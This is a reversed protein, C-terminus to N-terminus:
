DASPLPRGVAWPGDSAIIERACVCPVKDVTAPARGLGSAKHGGARLVTRCGVVDGLGCAESWRCGAGVQGGSGADVVLWTTLALRAVYAIRAGTVHRVCQGSNAAESEKTAIQVCCEFSLGASACVM